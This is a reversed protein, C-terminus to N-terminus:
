SIDIYWIQTYGIQTFGLQNVDKIFIGVEVKKNRYTTDTPITLTMPLYYNEGARVLVTSNAATIWCYYEPPLPEYGEALKDVDIPTIHIAITRDCERGNMIILPVTGTSGPGANAFRFESGYIGYGEKLHPPTPSGGVCYIDTDNWRWLVPGHTTHSRAGFYIGVTIAVAIIVAVILIKKKM